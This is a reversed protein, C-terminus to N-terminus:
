KAGTRDSRPKWVEEIVSDIQDATLFEDRSNIDTTAAERLQESDYSSFFQTHSTAISGAVIGQATQSPLGEHRLGVAVTVPDLPLYVENWDIGGAITAFVDGSSIVSFVGSDGIVFKPEDNTVIVWRHPRVKDPCKGGDDLFKKLSDNHADDIVNTRQFVSSLTSLGQRLEHEARGSRLYKKAEAKKQRRQWRPLGAVKEEFAEWYRDEFASTNTGKVLTDTALDFFGRLRERLAKTRFSLMWVLDGLMEGNRISVSRHRIAEAIATGCRSEFRGFANELEDDDRGYFYDESAVRKTNEPHPPTAKEYVWVTNKTHGKPPSPIRFLNLQARTLFHNNIKEKSM